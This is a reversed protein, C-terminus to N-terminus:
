FFDSFYENINKDVLRSDPYDRAYASLCDRDEMILSIFSGHHSINGSSGYKKNNYLFDNVIGEFDYIPLRFREVQTEKKYPHPVYVWKGKDTDFYDDLKKFITNYVEHEYASNYSNSHVSYLESKVDSLEDNLLSNMSDEDDIIRSVNDESITWFEPHGQESAILEMEETELSLQQDKLESIIRKKLREINEPNLEEIVDRYVDDTTDFFPEFVDEGGLISEITSRSLDNRHNDCFLDALRRRDHEWYATNNEIVVDGLEKEMFNYYAPKDNDYLWLLYENEWEESNSIDKPDIESMLGKRGLINFFTEYDNFYLKVDLDDNKFMEIIEEVSKM